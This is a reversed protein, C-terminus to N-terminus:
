PQLTITDSADIAEDGPILLYNIGLTLLDVTEEDSLKV